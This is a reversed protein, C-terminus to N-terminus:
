LVKNIINIFNKYYFENDYEKVNSRTNFNMKKFLEDNNLLLNLADTLNRVLDINNEILITNNKDIYEPIGGSNTAILPIGSSIAEIVVIGAAENCKSPVVAVDVISHIKAVEDNHVFGTFIINDKIEKSIEQLEYEYENTTDLGFNSSGIILLKINKDTKIDKFALILEKIGKEPIM